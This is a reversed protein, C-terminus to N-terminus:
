QRYRDPDIGWRKIKLHLGRRSIGLLEASHSVNGGTFRLALDIMEQETEGRVDDLTERLTGHTWASDNKDDRSM